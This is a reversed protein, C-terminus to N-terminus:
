AAGGAAKGGRDSGAGGPDRAASDWERPARAGGIHGFIEEAERMAEESCRVADETVWMGGRRALEWRSWARERAQALQALMGRLRDAEEPAAALCRDQLRAIDQDWARFREAITDDGHQM